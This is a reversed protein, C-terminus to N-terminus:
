CCFPVSHKGFALHQALCKLSKNLKNLRDVLVRLGYGVGLRCAEGCGILGQMGQDTDGKRFEDRM